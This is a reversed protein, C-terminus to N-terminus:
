SHLESYNETEGTEAVHYSQVEPKTIREPQNSTLPTVHPVELSSCKVQLVGGAEDGEGM